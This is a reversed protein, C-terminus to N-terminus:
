ICMRYICLTTVVQGNRLIILACTYNIIKEGDGGSGTHKELASGGTINLLTCKAGDEM